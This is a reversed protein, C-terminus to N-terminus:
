SATCHATDELPPIRDGLMLHDYRIVDMEPKKAAPPRRVSWGWPLVLVLALATLVIRPWAKKVPIVQYGILLAAAGLLLQVNAIAASIRSGNNRLVLCLFLFVILLKTTIKKGFQKRKERTLEDQSTEIGGAILEARRYSNGCYNCTIEQQDQGLWIPRGCHPCRIIKEEQEM